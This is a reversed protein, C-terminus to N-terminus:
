FLCASVVPKDSKYFPFKKTAHGHDLSKRRSTHITLVFFDEIVTLFREDGEKKLNWKLCYQEPTM